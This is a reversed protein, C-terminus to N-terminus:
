RRSTSLASTSLGGLRSLCQVLLLSATEPSTFDYHFRIFNGCIFIIFSLTKM